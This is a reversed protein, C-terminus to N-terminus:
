GSWGRGLSRTAASEGSHASTATALGLRFSAGRRSPERSLMGGNREALERAIALGRGHDAVATAVPRFLNAAVHPPLTFDPVFM